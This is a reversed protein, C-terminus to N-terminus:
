APMQELFAQIRTQLQATDGMGYDTEILLLPVGAKDLAEKVLQSEVIYPQCFMLSYHVVGRAKTDRVMDLIQDIRDTNPTFCACNVCLYRSAIADLMGEVTDSQSTVRDTYYRAGVCSEEGVVVGGSTEIVHHLKWNPLAMPSGSILLRPTTAPFVGTGSAVRGDLEDCLENVKATFRTVDDYFAVQEVLLADKGSIVAPNAQRLRALRQLAQRKADVLQIGKRLSEATLTRGSLEEMKHAFAQVESRWLTRAGDRKTHPLEMVHMEQYKGLIEWAKKKGDCTTEGVVLDSSEFYPCVRGLKFGVAAKILPCVSAPLVASAADSAFDTGACLGVGIAGVALIVEEPVYVCFSGVVKGGQAKHALLEQIRLGHAESVVFDFYGMAAPRDKQTMYLQPYVEMLVDMLRCHKGIDLGLDKWMQTYDTAM